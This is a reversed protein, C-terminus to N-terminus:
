FGIRRESPDILLDNASTDCLLLLGDNSFQWLENGYTRYWQGCDAGQWEYEFRVSIRCDTVSWLEKMLRYHLENKWKNTLSFKIENRGKFFVSRNRWQCNSDYIEVIADINQSNWADEDAQVKIRADELNFPPIPLCSM